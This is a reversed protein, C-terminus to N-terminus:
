ALKLAITKFIEHADNITLSSGQSCGSFDLFICIFYTIFFKGTQPLILGLGNAHCAPTRGCLWVDAQFNLFIVEDAQFHLSFLTLSQLCMHGTYQRWLEIHLIVTINRSVLTCQLWADSCTIIKLVEYNFPPWGYCFACMKSCVNGESWMTLAYWTRFYKM